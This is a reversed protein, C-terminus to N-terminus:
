TFVSYVQRGLGTQTNPIAAQLVFFGAATTYDFTGSVINSRVQLLGNAYLQFTNPNVNAAYITQGIISSITTTAQSGAPLSLNTRAFLVLTITGTVPSSMAIVPGNVDYDEAGLAVGNVFILEYGDIIQIFNSSFTAANTLNGEIVTFPPYDTNIAHWRNIATGTTVGTVTASFAIIRNVYDVGTVTYSTTGAGFRILEGVRIEQYPAGIYTM